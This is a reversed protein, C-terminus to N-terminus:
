WSDVTANPLISRVQDEYAADVAIYQIPLGKLPSYDKVKTQLIWVSNLKKLNSLVSIDSVDLGAIYLAQLKTLNKLPTIDKVNSYEFGISELNILNEVFSLDSFPCGTLYLEALGTYSAIQQLDSDDLACFTLNLSQLNTMADLSPLETIEIGSLFLSNIQTLNQLFDFNSAGTDGLTLSTLNTLRGIQEISFVPCGWIALTNLNSFQALEGADISGCYNLTLMRISLREGAGALVVADCDAISLDYLQDCGSFLNLDINGCADLWVTNLSGCNKLSELGSVNVAYVNLTNLGSFNALDALSITQDSIPLYTQGNDVSYTNSYRDVFPWASDDNVYLTDGAIKLEYIYAVDGTTIPESESKGLAKRIGAEITPDQWEIVIYPDLTAGPMETAATPPETAIPATAAATPAGYIFIISLLFLVLMLGSGSLVAISVTREKKDVEKARKFVGVKFCLWLLCVIDAFLLLILLSPALFVYGYITLIFM